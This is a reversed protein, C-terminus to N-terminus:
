RDGWPDLADLDCRLSEVLARAEACTMEARVIVGTTQVDLLIRGKTMHRVTHIRADSARGIVARAPRMRYQTVKV